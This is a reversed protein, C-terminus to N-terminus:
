HLKWIPSFRTNLFMGMGCLGKVKHKLLLELVKRTVFFDNYKFQYCRKEIRVGQVQVFDMKEADSFNMKLMQDRFIWNNLISHKECIIIDCSNECFPNPERVLEDAQYYISHPIRAIWPQQAQPAPDDEPKGTEKCTWHTIGDKTFLRRRPKIVYEASEYDLGTIGEAEMINKLRESIFLVIEKNFTYDIIGIDLKSTRKKKVIVKSVLKAGEMCGDIECIPRKVSGFMMTGHQIQYPRIKFLTYDPIEKQDIDIHYKRSCKRNAIHEAFLKDLYLVAEHCEADIVVHTGYLHYGKQIIMAKNVYDPFSDWHEAVVQGDYSVTELRM